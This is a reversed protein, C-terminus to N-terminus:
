AKSSGKGRIDISLRVVTGAAPRTDISLRAGLLDTRERMFRLGFHRRNTNGSLTEIDFGRGDDGIELIWAAGPGNRKAAPELRTFLWARTAGAHKSINRLAEQAVRLAVARAPEEILAPSAELRVDVPIGDHQILRNAADRLAEDLGESDILPPRLQNIYARITELEANLMQRLARLEQEGAEADSRIARDVVETQFILNALAQAPGDHLENALRAREEEQAALLAARQSANEPTAAANLRAGAEVLSAAERISREAVDLRGLLQRGTALEAKGTAAAPNMSADSLANEYGARLLGALEHIRAAASAITQVAEASLADLNLPRTTGLTGTEMPSRTYTDIKADVPDPRTM